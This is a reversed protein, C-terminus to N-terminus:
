KPVAAKSLLQHLTLTCISIPISSIKRLIVGAGIGLQALEARLQDVRAMVGQLESQLDNVYQSLWENLGHMYRMLERQQDM